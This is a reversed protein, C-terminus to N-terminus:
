NQTVPVETVEGGNLVYEYSDSVLENDTRVIVIGKGDPTAAQDVKIRITTMVNRKFTVEYVGLPTVSGDAKTWSINLSKEAYYNEYWGDEVWRGQWAERLHKFSYLGAYDPNESPVEVRYLENNDRNTVGINLVGENLSEAIYRVGYAVRKAEIQVTGGNEPVYEALEGYFRDHHYEYRKYDNYFAWMWEFNYLEFKSSYTFDGSVPFGFCHTYEGNHFHFRYDDIGEEVGVMISTEFKYKQGALLKISVNNLSTFVGYAYNIPESNGTITRVRVAILDQAGDARTMLPSESIEVYEGALGLNVTVYKQQEPAPAPAEEKKCSSFCVGFAATMMAIALMRFTKM